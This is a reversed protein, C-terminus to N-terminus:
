HAIALKTFYSKGFATQIAIVYIGEALVSCDISNTDPIENILIRGNLDFVKCATIKEGGANIHFVNSAPNPYVTFVNPQELNNVSALEAVTGLVPRMMLSGNIVSPMWTNNVNYFLKSVSNTHLDLGVNLLDKTYQVWGIYFKGSLYQPATLVYRYFVNNLNGWDTHYEFQFAPTVASDQYILTGPV